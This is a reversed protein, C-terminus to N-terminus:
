ILCFELLNLIKMILIQDLTKISLNIWNPLGPLCSSFSSLGSTLFVTVTLILLTSSSSITDCIRFLNGDHYLIRLTIAYTIHYILITLCLIFSPYSPCIWKCKTLLIILPLLASSWVLRDFYINQFHSWSISLFPIVSWFISSFIPLKFGNIQLQPIKLAPPLSFFDVKGSFTVWGIMRGFLLFTTMKYWWLVACLPLFIMSLLILDEPYQNIYLSEANFIIIELRTVQLLSLSHTPSCIIAPQGYSLSFFSSGNVGQPRFMDPGNRMLSLVFVNFYYTARKVHKYLRVM